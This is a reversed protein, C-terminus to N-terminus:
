IDGHKKCDVNFNSMNPYPHKESANKVWKHSVETWPNAPDAIETV